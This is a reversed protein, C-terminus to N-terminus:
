HMVGENELNVITDKEVGGMITILYNSLVQFFLSAFLSM